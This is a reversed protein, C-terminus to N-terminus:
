DILGNEEIMDVVFFRDTQVTGEAMAIYLSITNCPNWVNLETSGTM